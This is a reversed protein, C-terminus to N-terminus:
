ASSGAVRAALGVLRAPTGDLHTQLWRVDGGPLARLVRALGLLAVAFAVAGAVLGLVGGLASVVAL